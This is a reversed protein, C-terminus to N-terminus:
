KGILWQKFIPSRQTSVVTDAGEFPPKLDLKVRSKSYAYMGTIADFNVIFQRNIRFFKQTDLINELEDLYQDIVYKKNNFTIIFNTKNETYCYAVDKIDIALLTQGFRVLFRTQRNASQLQLAQALKQYDIAPSTEGYRKQYKDIAKSLDEQKIPKLLYDISNHQFAQLAYQDYATTFVIPTIIHVQQFIEFSSGDALHIDLFMLDPHTHNQLWEVATEISDLVEIIEIDPNINQILRQLRKAAAFEDEIILVKM